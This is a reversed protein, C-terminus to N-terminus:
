VPGSLPAYLSLSRSFHRGPRGGVRLAARPHHEFKQLQGGFFVVAQGLQERGFVALHQGVGLAVDLAPDFDDFEGAAIIGSHFAAGAIAQPLAKM